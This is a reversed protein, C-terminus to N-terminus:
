VIIHFTPQHPNTDQTVVGSLTVHINQLQRTEAVTVAIALAEGPPVKKAGNVEESNETETRVM